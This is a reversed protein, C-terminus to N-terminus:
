TGRRNMFGTLFVPFYLSSLNRSGPTKGPATVGAWTLASEPCVAVWCWAWGVLKREVGLGKRVRVCVNERRIPFSQIKKHWLQAPPVVSIFQCADARAASTSRGCREPFASTARRRLGVWPRPARVSRSVCANRMLGIYCEDSTDWLAGSPRMVHSEQWPLGLGIDLFPTITESPFASCVASPPISKCGLSTM